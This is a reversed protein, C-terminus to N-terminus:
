AALDNLSLMALLLAAVIAAVAAGMVITIVPVLLALLRQVGQTTRNEHIDAARLSMEPLRAHEEGLRLLHATRAPFVGSTALTGALGAGGRASTTAAEVAARACLNGMADRVIGLAGILPVGNGLLTGLTRTFRAALVEKALAGIVPLRLLVADARIRVTEMRLAMRAAVVCLMLGLGLAPGHTGLFDGAEILWRTADPLAAGSQEFLPVFQPLVHTLMLVIAGISAVLLLTPYIMATRVTMALARQRELMKALHELAQALRGGAEGARVLAIQIPPFSEGQAALADALSSGDRVADRLSTAIARVRPNGATEVLFRLASDLDQGAGLMVALEGILDATEQRRLAGGRGIEMHLFSWWGGAGSAPEARMPLLGQKRLASVVADEGDAEMVGTSFKGAADVAEYRYQAM